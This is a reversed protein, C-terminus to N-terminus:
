KETATPLFQCITAGNRSQNWLGKFFTKSWLHFSSGNEVPNKREERKKQWCECHSPVDLNQRSFKAGSLSRSLTFFLQWSFGTAEQGFNGLNHSTGRIWGDMWGEMWGDPLCSESQTCLEPLNDLHEFWYWARSLTVFWGPPSISPWSIQLLRSKKKAINYFITQPQAADATRVGCVWRHGM